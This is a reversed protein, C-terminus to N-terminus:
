WRSFVSLVKMGYARVTYVEQGLSDPYPEPHNRYAGLFYRPQNSGGEVFRARDEARMIALNNGILGAHHATVHLVPSDDHHAIWELGQRYSLGWYDREFLKEVRAGPLFSFYVHEQPHAQVMRVVTFVAELSALAAAGAAVPRLLRRHQGWQWLALGGRLALILLAPYVFYLHRWGDYIISDLAIVMIIPLFFWGLFLIDLRGAFTRLYGLQRRALSFLVGGVGLVFGVLYAVPTTVAIWVPAYHWPLWVAGVKEGLYFVEGTWRFRKLTTFASLFNHLPDEWLFPWGVITAAGAVVLFVATLLALKRQDPRPKNGLLLELAVMGLTFAILLIGLIRMDIALATALGHAVARKFTPRQLLLILTYIGLTFLALFGPDKANYFAEGFLRPSLLLLTSLVLGLQWSGFYIRGINYLAWVGGVFLLFTTFHRLLYYSRGDLGLYQDLLALPMEYIVGHDNEIYGHIDPVQALGPLQSTWEPAFISGVYKASVLGITHDSGEDWSVGFDKYLALGILLLVM